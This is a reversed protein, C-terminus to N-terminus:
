EPSPGRAQWCLFRANTTSNMGQVVFGPLSQLRALAADEGQAMQPFAIRTQGTSDNLIWWVDCGWPGNDNTEVYVAALDAMRIRQELQKPARCVLVDDHTVEVTFQEEIHKM